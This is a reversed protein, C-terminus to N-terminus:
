KKVYYIRMRRKCNYVKMAVIRNVEEYEIENYKLMKKIARSLKKPNEGLLEAMQGLSLPEEQQELLELIESQVM